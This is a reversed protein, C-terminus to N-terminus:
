YREQFSKYQDNQKESVPMIVFRSHFVFQFRSCSNSFKSDTFFQGRQVSAFSQIKIVLDVSTFFFLLFMNSLSLQQYFFCSPGTFFFHCSMTLMLNNKHVLQWLYFHHQIIIMIFSSTPIIMDYIFREVGGWHEGPVCLIM